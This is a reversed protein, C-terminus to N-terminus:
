TARAHDPLLSPMPRGQAHCAIALALFDLPNRRQLRLTSVTTLIRATFIAGEATDNGQSLSRVIVSPRILREGLNNTMPILEDTLFRWLCAQHRHLEGAIARAKAGPAGDRTWTLVTNMRDRIPEIARVMESRSLTGARWARWIRMVARGDNELRVGHWESYYRESMAIFDRLVHAWCFARVYRAYASWRDVVVVGKFDAGLIGRIVKGGRSRDIWYFAVRETAVLWLWAKNKAVRWSTEDAHVVDSRALHARVEEVPAELAASTRKEMDCITSAPLPVGYIMEFLEGALRKSQRFRGVLVALLAHIRVGFLSKGVADPARGCTEHGCSACRLRHLWYWTLDITLPPIEYLPRGIPSEDRGTLPADCRECREPVVDEQRDADEPRIPTRATSAHGPQGGRLRKTRQGRSRHGTRDVEPGDSRPPKSSNQSNIKLQSELERVRESLTTNQTQLETLASRQSDIVALAACLEQSLRRNEAALAKVESGAVSMKLM